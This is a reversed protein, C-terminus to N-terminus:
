PERKEIGLAQGIALLTSRATAAGPDTDISELKAASALASYIAQGHNRVEDSNPQEDTVVFSNQGANVRHTYTGARLRELNREAEDYLQDIIRARRARNDTQKAAVANATTSRNFALGEMVAASAVLSASCGIQRAIANCSLGEEYLRRVEARFEPDHRSNLM